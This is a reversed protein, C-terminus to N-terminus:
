APLEGLGGVGAMCRSWEKRGASGVKSHSQSENMIQIGEGGRSHVSWEVLFLADCVAPM